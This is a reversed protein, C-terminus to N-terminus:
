FIDKYANTIRSCLTKELILKLPNKGETLSKVLYKELKKSPIFKYKIVDDENSILLKGLGVDLATISKNDMNSEIVANCICWIAKSILKNLDEVEITTLKSIDDIINIM